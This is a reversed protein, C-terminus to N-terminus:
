SYIAHCAPRSFGCLSCCREARDKLRVASACAGRVGRALAALTVPLLDPEDDLAFSLRARVLGFSLVSRAWCDAVRHTSCGKLGVSILHKVLNAPWKLSELVGRSYTQTTHIPRRFQSKTLVRFM